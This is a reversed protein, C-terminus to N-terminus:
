VPLRQCRYFSTLFPFQLCFRNSLTGSTAVAESHHCISLCSEVMVLVVVVVLQAAFIGPHLAYSFLALAVSLRM